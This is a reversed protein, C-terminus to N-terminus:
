ESERRYRKSVEWFGWVRCVEVAGWRTGDKASIIIDRRDECQRPQTQAYANLAVLPVWPASVAAGIIAFGTLRRRTSIRMDM